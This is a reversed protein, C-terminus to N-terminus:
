EISEPKRSSHVWRSAILLDTHCVKCTITLM